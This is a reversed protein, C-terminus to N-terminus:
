IQEMCLENTKHTDVRVAPRDSNVLSCVNRMTNCSELTELTLSKVYGLVKLFFSLIFLFILKNYCVKLFNKNEIGVLCELM